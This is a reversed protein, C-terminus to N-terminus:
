SHRVTDLSVSRGGWYILIIERNIHCTEFARRFCASVCVCVCVVRISVSTDSFSDRCFNMSDDRNYRFTLMEASGERVKGYIVM